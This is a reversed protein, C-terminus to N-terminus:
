GRVYGGCAQAAYLRHHRQEHLGNGGHVADNPDDKRIWDRRDGGACPAQKEVDHIANVNSEIRGRCFSSSSKYCLDLPLKNLKKKPKFRKSADIILGDEASSM